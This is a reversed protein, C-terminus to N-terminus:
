GSLCRVKFQHRLKHATHQTYMSHPLLLLKVWNWFQCSSKSSLTHIVKKRERVAHWPMHYPAHSIMLSHGHPLHYLNCNNAEKEKEGSYVTLTTAQTLSHTYTNHICPLTFLEWALRHRSEQWQASSSFSTSLLSALHHLHGFICGICNVITGQPLYLGPVLLLPNSRTKRGVFWTCETVWQDSGVLLFFRRERVWERTSKTEHKEHSRTVGLM